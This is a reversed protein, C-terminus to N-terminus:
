STAFAPLTTITLRLCSRIDDLICVTISLVTGDKGPCIALVSHELFRWVDEGVRATLFGIM